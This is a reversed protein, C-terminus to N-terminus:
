AHEKARMRAEDIRNAMNERMREYAGDATAEYAVSEDAGPHQEMFEAILQEHAQIFLEKV